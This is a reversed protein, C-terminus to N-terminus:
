NSIFLDGGFFGFAGNQIIAAGDHELATEISAINALEDFATSAGSIANFDGLGGLLNAGVAELAAEMAERSFGGIQDNDLGAFMGGVVSPDFDGFQDSNINEIMTRLQEAELGVIGDGGTTNALNVLQQVGLDRFDEPSLVGLTDFSFDKLIEGNNQFDLGSLLGGLNEGMQQIHEAGFNAVIGEIQDIGLAAEFGLSSFVDFATGGDWAGMAKDDLHQLAGIMGENGLEAMQGFDMAGMMGAIDDRDMGSAALDFEAGGFAFTDFLGLLQGGEMNQFQDPGMAGILGGMNEMGTAQDFGITDFVNFAASPDWGKFDNVGLGGIAGFIQDRGMAAISEHELSGFIGGLDQGGLITRDFDPAAFDIRGFMDVLQGDEIKDFNEPGMAGLFGSIQGQFEDLRQEFFGPDFFPSPGGAPGGTFTGDPLPEGEFPAGPPPGGLFTAEFMAFAQDDPIGLFDEPAFDHVAGAIFDQDFGRIDEVDFKSFAGAWQDGRLDLEQGKLGNQFLDAVFNSDMSQFGQYDLNYLESILDEPPVFNFDGPQFGNFFDTAQEADVGREGWFQDFHGGFDVFTDGVAAFEGFDGPKFDDVVFFSGFEDSRFEGPDFLQDFAGPQFDQGVFFDGFDGKFEDPRFTDVFLDPAFDGPNFFDYFDGDPFYDPGGDFGPGFEPGCPGEFGFGGDFTPIGDFVFDGRSDFSFTGEFGPDPAPGFFEGGDPYPSGDPYGAPDSDGPYYDGPPPDFVFDGSPPEYFFEGDSLGFYGSAARIDSSLSCCHGSSNPGIRM